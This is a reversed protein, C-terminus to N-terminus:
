MTGVDAGVIDQLHSIGDRKLITLLGRNIRRVVGPGQYILATLLQVLSAGSRLKRYADEASRVGGAAIIRYRQRDMRRYLNAIRRDMWDATPPGSIAGPWEKWVERPTSLGTRRSPSLNFMFGQVSEFPDVTQLMRDIAADNWDPSLKLFCPVDIPISALRDLLERLHGPQDFFARGDQTNPCSLNLMFYSAHRQLTRASTVYDDLVEDASDAEAGIGHNTNVLNIGLPVTIPQRALHNAVEAAGDNPLGYHVCIAEDAPLRWLRPAPNGASPSASVSGIEVHGFGLSALAGIARGSKDYGAALGLPNEFRIGAVEINLRPDPVRHLRSSLRILGPVRTGRDAWTISQDHAWEPDFRFLLPRVIREYIM